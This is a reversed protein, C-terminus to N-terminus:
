RQQLKRYIEQPMQGSAPPHYENGHKLMLRDASFTHDIGLQGEVVVGAADQFMEPPTSTTVVAISTVDDTIAFTTVPGQTHITGAAVVGGLRVPHAIAAAGKATLETPTVFYVVNKELGGWLLYAIGGVIVLVGFIIPIKKNMALAAVLLVCLRWRRAVHTWVRVVRIGM